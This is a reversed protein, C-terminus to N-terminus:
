PADYEDILIVVQKGTKEYVSTILNMLRINPASHNASIGFRKEHEELIHLLYDELQDKEMHKSSALSLRLVPYETM